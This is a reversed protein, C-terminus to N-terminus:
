GLLNFHIRAVDTQLELGIRKARGLKGINKIPLDNRSQTFLLAKVFLDAEDGGFAVFGYGNTEPIRFVARIGVM